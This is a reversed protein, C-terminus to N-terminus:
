AFAAVKGAAKTTKKIAQVPQSNGFVEIVDVFVMLLGVSVAILGVLFKVLRIPDNAINSLAQLVNGANLLPATVKVLLAALQSVPDNSTPSEPPLSGANQSSVYDDNIHNQGDAIFSSGDYAGGSWTKLGQAVNTWTGSQLAKFLDAYGPHNQQLNQSVASAESGISVYNWVHGGNGFNNFATAGPQFLGCALMNNAPRPSGGTEHMSWGVIASRITNNPTGNCAIIIADAHAGRTAM